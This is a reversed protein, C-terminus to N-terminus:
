ARRGATTTSSSRCDDIPGGSSVTHPEGSDKLKFKVTDGAHLTVNDPFYHIMLADFGDGDGDVQITATTSESATKTAGAAVGTATKDASSKGSSCAMALVAILAVLASM